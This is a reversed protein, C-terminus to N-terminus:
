DYPYQISQRHRYWRGRDLEAPRQEGIRDQYARIQSLLENSQQIASSNM